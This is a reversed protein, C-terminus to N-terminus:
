IEGWIKKKFKAATTKILLGVCFQLELKSQEFTLVVV